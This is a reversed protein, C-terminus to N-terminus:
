LPAERRHKGGEGRLLGTKLCDGPFVESATLAKILGAKVKDEGGAEEDGNGGGPLNWDM